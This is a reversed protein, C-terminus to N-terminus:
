VLPHNPIGELRTLTADKTQYVVEKEQVLVRHPTSVEYWAFTTVEAPLTPFLTRLESNIATPIDSVPIATEANLTAYPFAFKFHEQFADHFYLHHKSAITPILMGTISVFLPEVVTKYLTSHLVLQAMQVAPYQRLKEIPGDGYVNQVRLCKYPGKVVRYNDPLYSELDCIADRVSNVTISPRPNFHPQM